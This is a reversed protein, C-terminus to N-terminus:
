KLPHHREFVLMLEFNVVNMLYLFLVCLIFVLSFVIGGGRPTPKEHLTRFNLNALINHRLAFKRYYITGFISLVYVFFLLIVFNSDIM